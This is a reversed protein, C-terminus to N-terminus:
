SCRQLGPTVRHDHMRLHSHKCCAGLQIVCCSLTACRVCASVASDLASLLLLLVSELLRYHLIHHLLFNQM